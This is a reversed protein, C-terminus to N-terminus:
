SLQSQLSVKQEKTSTEFKDQLQSYKRNVKENLSDVRVMKKSFAKRSQSLKGM